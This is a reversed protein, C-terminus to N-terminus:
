FHTTLLDKCQNRKIKGSTTKPITGPKVLIIDHIAIDHTKMISERLESVVLNRNCQQLVKKQIEVVAIVKTIQNYEISFVAAGNNGAAFPHRNCTLEIDYPYINRGNIILLDKIRGTIYLMDEYIFGTDGTRLYYYGDFEHLSAHFCEETLRGNNFYGPSVATGSIWVEGIEDKKCLRTTRPEVIEVRFQSSILGCSVINKGHSSEQVRGKHFEAENLTLTKAGSLPPTGSVFLTCEALGYTPAFAKPNFGYEQFRESFLKMTDADIPESGNLAVSWSSLDLHSLDAEININTLCHKYGFNPSASSHFHYQSILELWRIPRQVFNLPPMFVYTGGSFLPQLMQGILGMDHFHPLWGGGVLEESYGYAEQIAKLNELLNGHSVMVGKPKSLSGSTYQIFALRNLNLFPLPFNDLAVNQENIWFWRRDSLEPIKKLQQKLVVETSATTLISKVDADDLISLLSKMQQPNRPQKLPIAIVGSYLCALFNIIFDLGSPYLLAVPNDQLGLKVFLHSRELVRQNLEGYTLKTATEVGYPQFVCAIKETKQDAHNLLVGRLIQQRSSEHFIMM